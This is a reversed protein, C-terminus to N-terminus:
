PVVMSFALACCVLECAGDVDGSAIKAQILRASVRREGIGAANVYWSRPNERNVAAGERGLGRSGDGASATKVEVANSEVSRAAYRGIDATKTSGKIGASGRTDKVYSAVIHLIAGASESHLNPAGTRAVAVVLHIYAAAGSQSAHKTDVEDISEHGARAIGEVKNGM